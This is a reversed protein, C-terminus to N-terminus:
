GITAVILAMDEKLALTLLVCLWLAIWQPFTGHEYPRLIDLLLFITLCLAPAFTEPHFDFLNAAELAPLLLYSASLVMAAFHSHTRRLTLAFVPIAGLALALTQAVFLVRVDDWFWYLPALLILIPQLHTALFNSGFEPEASYTLLRGHATNWIVQDYVGLDFVSTHHAEFQADALFTFLLVYAVILAALAAAPIHRPDISSARAGLTLERGPTCVGLSEREHTRGCGRSEGLYRPSAPQLFM